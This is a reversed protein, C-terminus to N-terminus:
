RGSSPKASSPSPGQAAASFARARPAIAWADIALRLSGDGRVIAGAFPGLGAILEGLPRVLLEETHGVGDVGVSAPPEPAGHGQLELDIAYKAAKTAAGDLCALLHPITAADAGDNTRVRRAHAIPLALESEGAVIWLVTVLGSEIPVDIRASFGEGARSSLRIAGGMRQIGSRAIELGIGRGALLDSSERTSFGPLFLLSLLTDDDAADAIARTVLAAEVARARVDAVDVGAGDDEITISLRNGVKRAGLAITGSPPKGHASRTAPPEIGHAVANRVLQLCPEVLQEAIRRDITEDAGRTRVIVARGTRRAESDIATTLRGFMRGVTTQRMTSLQRKADTVSERLVHEIASLGGAADDADEGFAGLAAVVGEVHGLAAAPAGWPRPAGILRLAEVLSGRLGRLTLAVKRGREARSAIRERARDIVDLRELLRDVDAAAVRITASAEDFGSLRPPPESEASRPPLSSVSPRSKPAPRGRARLTTLATEPDDLLAGLVARWDAVEKMAARATETSDALRLREELGHCFWSMPDDGVASAAGKMTHVHRYLASAAEIPDDGTALAHDVRALRDTVEASYQARVLPDLELAILDGPPIPWRAVVASEGASLRQVATRVVVAADDFGAEDGERIRRHLRELTSALDREGALGSSGKLAHMARQAEVADRPRAELTVLHRGLEQILLRRLEPDSSTM